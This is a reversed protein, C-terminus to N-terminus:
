VRYLETGDKWVEGYRIEFRKMTRSLERPDMKLIESWM